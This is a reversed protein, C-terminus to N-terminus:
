LCVRCTLVATIWLSVHHPKKSKRQRRLIWFSLCGDHNQQLIWAARRMLVLHQWFLFARDGLSACLTGQFSLARAEALTL